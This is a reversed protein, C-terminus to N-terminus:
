PILGLEKAIEILKDSRKWFDGLSEISNIQNQSLSSKPVIVDVNAEVTKMGTKKAFYTRHNGNSQVCYEGNPFLILDIDNGFRKPDYGNAKISKEIKDLREQRLGTEYTLGVIKDVPVTAIGSTCVYEDEYGEMMEKLHRWGSYDINM